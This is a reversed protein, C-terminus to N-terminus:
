TMHFHYWCIQCLYKTHQLGEGHSEMSGFESKARFFTLVFYFVTAYPPQLIILVLNRTRRWCCSQFILPSFSPNYVNPFKGNEHKWEILFALLKLGVLQEHEFELGSLSHSLSSLVGSIEPVYCLGLDKQVSFLHKSLGLLTSTIGLIKKHFLCQSLLTEMLM